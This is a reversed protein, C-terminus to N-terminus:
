HRGFGTALISVQGENNSWGLLGSLTLSPYFAARAEGTAYFAAALTQEAQRVDPRRSLLQVPIGVSLSDPANWGDLTGRRISDPTRGLLSSFSNEVERIQRRLEVVQTCVDYYNAESQSVAADTEEGVDMLAKTMDAGRKWSEATEKSVQLQADLMALTYYYNAIGSILHAQVAQRYARSQELQMQTRKKANRLGGFVDVQWTAMAPLTYARTTGNWAFGGLSGQPSLSLNPLFALRAAKLAAEAETIQLEAVRLDTNNALGEEILTQLVPDTFFERWSLDGLSMSDTTEMGYLGETQIDSPREYNRYIGCGSLLVAALMLTIIQRYRM